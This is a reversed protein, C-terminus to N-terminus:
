SRTRNASARSERRAAASSSSAPAGTQLALLLPHGGGELDDAGLAGGGGGDELLDAVEGLELLDALLEGEGEVVEPDIGELLEVSADGEAGAAAGGDDLGEEGV